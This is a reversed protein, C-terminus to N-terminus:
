VLVIMRTFGSVYVQTLVIGTGSSFIFSFFLLSHTRPHILKINTICSSANTVPAKSRDISQSSLILLSHLLLLPLLLRGRHSNMHKGLLRLSLYIEQFITGRLKCRLHLLLFLLASVRGVRKKCSVHTSCKFSWFFAHILANTMLHNCFVHWGIFPAKEFLNTPCSARNFSRRKSGITNMLPWPLAILEIKTSENLHYLQSYYFFFFLVPCFYKFLYSILPARCRCKEVSELRNKERSVDICHLLSIGLM